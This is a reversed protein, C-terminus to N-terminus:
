DVTVNIFLGMCFATSDTWIKPLDQGEYGLPNRGQEYCDKVLLVGYVCKV